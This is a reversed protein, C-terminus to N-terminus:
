ITPEHDLNYKQITSIYPDLWTTLLRCKVISHWATWESMDDCCGTEKSTMKFLHCKCSPRALMCLNYCVTRGMCASLWVKANQRSLFGMAYTWVRSQCPIDKQWDGLLDNRLLRDSMHRTFFGISMVQSYMEVEVMGLWVCVHMRLYVWECVATTGLQLEM